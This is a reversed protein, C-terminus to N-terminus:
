AAFLQKAYDPLHECDKYPGLIWKVYEQIYAVHICQEEVAEVIDDDQLECALKHVAEVKADTDCAAIMAAVSDCDLGNASDWQLKTGCAAEYQEIRQKLQANSM